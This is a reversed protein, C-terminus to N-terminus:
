SKSTQSPASCFFPRSAPIKYRPFTAEQRGLFTSALCHRTGESLQGHHSRMLAAGIVAVQKQCRSAGGLTTGQSVGVRVVEFEQRGSFCNKGIQLYTRSAYRTLLIITELNSFGALIHYNESSGAPFTCGHAIHNRAAARGSHRGKKERCLNRTTRWSFSWLVRHTAFCRSSEKRDVTKALGTSSPPVGGDRARYREGRHAWGDGCSHYVSAMSDCCM